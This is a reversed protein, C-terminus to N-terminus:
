GIPVASRSRPDATGRPRQRRRAQLPQRAGDGSRRYPHLRNGRYRSSMEIGLATLYEFDRRLEDAGNGSRSYAQTREILRDIGLLPHQAMKDQLGTKAQDLLQRIQEDDMKDVVKSYLTNPANLTADSSDTNARKASRRSPGVYGMTVVFGRRDMVMHDIRDIIHLVPKPKVLLDDIGSDLLTRVSDASADHVTAIAIVFPNGGAENRRIRQM